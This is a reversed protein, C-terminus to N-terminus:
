LKELDELIEEKEYIAATIGKKKWNGIKYYTFSFLMGFLWAIPIGWWIGKTGLLKSLYASAPIRLIVQSFITSFMPIFTDGAGRLVGNFIFMIAFTFFFPGVTYLYEKGIKVVMPDRNFLSILYKPFAIILASIFLNVGLTMLLASKVGKKVREMKKAGLNQGVFTTVAMSFNMAPMTALSEIRTAATFGALTDTGFRNVINMLAMAGISVMIQQIGSPIGISLSKKFINSDFVIRGKLNFVPNKKHLFIIGTLFSFGQAIITALAAGAVGMKFPIIFLLDLFINIFTAFILLYLPTKSDGLGRLIASLGNYGFSFTIGSFIILLYTRSSERVDAPTGLINLLLSSSLIGTITMVISLVFIVIYTTSIAKKLNEIDKAGFFQSILVTTGMTAGMVLAILLFMVPFSVGVAAIGQKGVFQGVIIADVINYLQQFVNSLLLPITFRLIKLPINGETMDIM